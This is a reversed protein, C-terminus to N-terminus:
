VMEDNNNNAISNLADTYIDFCCSRLNKPM